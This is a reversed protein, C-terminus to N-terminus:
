REELQTTIMPGQETMLITHEFQACVSHDCTKVTWNDPMLKCVGSGACIMPEITFCMGPLIEEKGIQPNFYHVIQPEHHLSKGIGHGCYEKVIGFNFQRVHEEIIKGIQQFRMGVKIADIAKMMAQQTTEVLLQTRKNVKGVMVTRCTDGHFGDLNVVLDVSVIDGNKIIRRGPIGHCIEDNISVCLRKPYGHFGLCAAEGGHEELFKAFAEDLEETRVGAKVFDCVHELASAALTGASIIYDQESKSYIPIM